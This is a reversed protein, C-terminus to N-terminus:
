PLWRTNCHSLERKYGNIAECQQEAIQLANDLEAGSPIFQKMCFEQFDTGNGNENFWLDALHGVGRNIREADEIGYKETLKKIAQTVDDQLNNRSDVQGISILSVFFLTAFITFVNFKM